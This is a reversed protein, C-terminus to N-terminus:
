FRSFPFFRDGAVLKKRHAHALLADAIPQTIAAPRPKGGKTVRLRLVAGPGVDAPTLALAESVRLSAVFAVRIFLGNREGNRKIRAAEVMANIAEPSWYSLLPSAKSIAKRNDRNALTM